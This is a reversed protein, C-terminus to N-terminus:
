TPLFHVPYTVTTVGVDKADFHFARVRNAVQEVLEPQAIESSVVSVRSIRGDPSIVLELVIKGSLGPARTLAAQYLAFLAGKNADFVRRIEELSRQRGLAVGNAASTASGGRATLATPPAAVRTQTRGALAVNGVAGPAADLAMARRGQNAGLLARDSRAPGVTSASATAAARLTRADPARMDAFADDLAAVGADASRDVPTRAPVVPLVAPPRERPAQLPRPTASNAPAVERPQRVQEPPPPPVPKAAPPVLTIRTMTVADRVARIQQPVDVLPIVVGLVLVLAIAGLQMSISRRWEHEPLRWPLPYATALTTM